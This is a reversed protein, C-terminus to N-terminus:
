KAAGPIRMKDAAVPVTLDTDLSDSIVRVITPASFELVVTPTERPTVHFSLKAVDGADNFQPLEGAGAGIQNFNLIRASLKYTGAMMDVRGSVGNTVTFVLTLLYNNGAPAIAQNFLALKPIPATPTAPPSSVPPPTNAVVAPNTQLNPQAQAIPQAQAPLPAPIQRKADEIEAQLLALANSSKVFESNAMDVADQFADLAPQVRNTFIDVARERATQEIVAKIRPQKFELAIQNSMQDFAAGIHNSAQAGYEALYQRSRLEIVKDAAAVVGLAALAVIAVLLTWFKWSSFIQGAVFRIQEQTLGAYPEEELAFPVRCDPCQVLLDNHAKRGCRPCRRVM